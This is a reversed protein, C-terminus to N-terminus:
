GTGGARLSVSAQRLPRGARQAAHRAPRRRGPTGPQRTSAATGARRSGRAGREHEGHRHCFTASNRGRRVARPRVHHRRRCQAARRRAGAGLHDGVLRGQGDFLGGGSVGKPVPANTGLLAGHSTVEKGAVTGEGFSPEPSRSRDIAYVREGLTVDDYTRTPAPDPLQDAVTLRCIGEPPAPGQFTARQVAGTQRLGAVDAGQLNQCSTLLTNATVAVASGSGIPTLGKGDANLRFTALLWVSKSRTAFIEDPSLAAQPASVAPVAATPSSEQARRSAAVAAADPPAGSGSGPLGADCACLGLALILMYPQRYRM